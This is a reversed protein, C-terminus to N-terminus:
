KTSGLLWREAAALQNDAGPASPVKPAVASDPQIPGDYEKQFRDLEVSTSLAIEAGDPLGFVRNGTTLGATPMGIFRTNPRGHLAIVVAEGASATDPGTIVVMPIKDFDSTAESHREEAHVEWPKSVGFSGKFYGLPGDGLFPSLAVLMPWMNGGTDNRLDIIWGARVEGAIHSISTLASDEYMDVNHREVNNFDPLAIYGVGDPRQEVKPLLIATTASHTADADTRSVLHSHHDNLSALLQRILPYADLSWDDKGVENQLRTVEVNWNILSSHLANERVIKIAAALEIRAPVISDRPVPASTVLSLRDVASHGDGYLFTGFALLRASNPVIIAVERKQSSVSGKILSAQSNAFTLAGLPGDSRLWIGAGEAADTTSILASLRVTHGRYPTADVSAISGGYPSTRGKSSTLEVHAGATDTVSGHASLSYDKNGVSMMWSTTATTPPVDSWGVTSLLGLLCGIAGIASYRRSDLITM